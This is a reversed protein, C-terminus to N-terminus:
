PMFEGGCIHLHSYELCAGGKLGEHPWLRRRIEKGSDSSVALKAICKLSSALDKMDAQVKNSREVNVREGKRERETLWQAMALSECM